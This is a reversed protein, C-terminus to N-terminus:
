TYLPAVFLVKSGAWVINNLTMLGSMLVAACLSQMVVFVNLRGQQLHHVCLKETDIVNLQYNCGEAPM